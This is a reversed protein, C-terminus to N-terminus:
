VAQSMASMPDTTRLIPPGSPMRDASAAPAAPDLPECLSTDAIWLSETCRSMPVGALTYSTNVLRPPGPPLSTRSKITLRSGNVQYVVSGDSARRLPGVSRLACRDRAPYLQYRLSPVEM